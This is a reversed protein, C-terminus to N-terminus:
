VNSPDGTLKNAARTSRFILKDSSSCIPKDPDFNYSFINNPVFVPDNLVLPTHQEIWRFAHHDQFM